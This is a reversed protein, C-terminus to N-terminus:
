KAQGGFPSPSKLKLKTLYLGSRREFKCVTQGQGDVILAESDTFNCKFGNSCIKSVSMLPRTIRASQFTSSFPVTGTNLSAELNLVAEGANPVKAGNGVIFGQGRMSGQSPQLDYGPCHTEIDMVHDCCGSDLAVELDIDIWEVSMATAEDEPIESEMILTNMLEETNVGAAELAMTWSQRLEDRLAQRRAQRWEERGRHGPVLVVPGGPRSSTAQSGTTDTNTCTSSRHLTNPQVSIACYTDTGRVTTTTPTPGSHPQEAGQSRANAKLVEWQGDASFPHKADSHQRDFLNFPDMHPPPPWPVNEMYNRNYDEAEEIIEWFDDQGSGTGATDWTHNQAVPTGTPRLPARADVAGSQLGGARQEPTTQDDELDDINAVDKCNGDCESGDCKSCESAYDPGLVFQATESLRHPGSTANSTGKADSPEVLSNPHDTCDCGQPCPASFDACFIARKDRDQRRTRQSNAQEETPHEAMDDTSDDGLAGFRNGDTAQRRRSSQTVRRTMPIDGLTYGQPQPRRGSVTRYGEEDEVCLIRQANELVAAKPAKGKDPCSNAIHGKQGCIHCKRESFPIRPKKCERATHGKLGCNGCKADQSDRPPTPPRRTAGPQQNQRQRGGQFSRKTNVALVLQEREQPSLQEFVFTPLDFETISENPASDPQNQAQISPGMPNPGYPNEVIHAAAKKLGGFDELFRIDQRLQDKLKELDRMDKLALMVTHPTDPPMMDIATIVKTRESLRDGGCRYYETLRGEWAEIDAIVETLRKSPPPKIIDRHMFMLRAESRPALPVVLKRWAEFGNGSEVNGFNEHEKGTLSLNLYGWLDRSLQLPDNDLCFGSESLARVHSDTITNSQASEAWRLFVKMEYAKSILYNTTKKVWGQKDDANFVMNPSSAVKDEFPTRKADGIHHVATRGMPAVQIMPDFKPYAFDGPVPEEAQQSRPQQAADQRGPALGSPGGPQTGFATGQAWSRPMSPAHQATRAWPTNQAARAWPDQATMTPAPAPGAAGNGHGGMTRMKVIEQETTTQVKMIEQEALHIRANLFEKAESQQQQVTGIEQRHNESHERFQIELAKLGDSMRQEVTPLKEMMRALESMDNVSAAKDLANATAHLQSELVKLKEKIDTDNDEIATNTVVIQSEMAKLKQKLEIDSDVIVKLRDDQEDNKINLAKLIKTVTELKSAHDNIVEALSTEAETATASPNYRRPGPSVPTAAPGTNATEVGRRKLRPSVTDTMAAVADFGTAGSAM